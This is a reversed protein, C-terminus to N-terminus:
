LQVYGHWCINFFNKNEKGDSNRPLAFVLSQVDSRVQQQQLEMVSNLEVTM